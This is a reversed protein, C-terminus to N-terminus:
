LILMCDGYSFFRYQEKVAETYARLILDRGAFASVLLLLTCKPLHFNTLLRDVVQFQYGPYIFLDCWGKQAACGQPSACHELVRTSTSGVAVIRQGRAKARNLRAAAASSLEFYEPLMQHRTYDENRVPLFTGPGVHLTISVTEIGKEALAQIVEGTFHLGATPCAVAGTQRAFVTQYNERDAEGAPRHIYPPLPVEGHALVQQLAGEEGLFRVTAVGPEPLSVIEAQLDPGFHLIQGSRLRGRHTARAQLGGRCNCAPQPLHHLLLEVRGGSAKVGHLRAPFVRTDNVVLLDDPDLWKALHRFHAHVLEGTERKLVLLRSADRRELPEQAVLEPPLHYDFDAILTKEEVM